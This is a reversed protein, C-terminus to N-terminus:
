QTSLTQIGKKARDARKARDALLWQGEPPTANGKKPIEISGGRVECVGDKGDLIQNVGIRGRM